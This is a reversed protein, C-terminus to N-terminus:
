RSAHSTTVPAPRRGSRRGVAPKPVAPTRGAAAALPGSVEEAAPARAPVGPGPDIAAVLGLTAAISFSTALIRTAAAPPRRRPAQRSPETTENM